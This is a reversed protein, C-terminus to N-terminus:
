QAALFDGLVLGSGAAHVVQGQLVGVVAGAQLGLFDGNLTIAYNLTEGEGTLAGTLDALFTYGASTDALRDIVGNAITLTGGYPVEGQSIFDGASGSLSDSAFAVDLVLAGDLLVNGAATESDLRLVGEYRASGSLPLTAPDTVTVGGWAAQLAAIQAEYAAYGAPPSTEVAGEQGSDSCGALFVAVMLPWPRWRLVHRVLAMM